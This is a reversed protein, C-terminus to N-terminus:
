SSNKVAHILKRLVLWNAYAAVLIVLHGALFLPPRMMGGLGWREAMNAELQAQLSAVEAARADAAAHAAVLLEQQQQAQQELEAASNRVQELAAEAQALRDTHAALQAQLRAKDAALSGQEHRETDLSSLQQKAMYLQATADRYQAQAAALAAETAAIRGAQEKSAEASHCCSSAIAALTRPRPAALLLYPGAEGRGM